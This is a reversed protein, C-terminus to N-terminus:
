LMQSMEPPLEEQEWWPDPTPLSEHSGVTQESLPVTPYTRAMSSSASSAYPDHLSLSPNPGGELEQLRAELRAIDEELMQTRTRGQNDTYECDDIKNAEICPTCM